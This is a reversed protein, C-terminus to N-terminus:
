RQRRKFLGGMRIQNSREKGESNKMRGVKGPCDVSRRVGPGKARNGGGCRGSRGGGGRGGSPSSERRPGKKLGRFPPIEGDGNGLRGRGGLGAGVRTGLGRWGASPNQTRTIRGSAMRRRTPLPCRKREGNLVLWVNGIIGRSKKKIRTRQNRRVTMVDVTGERFMGDWGGGGEGGSPDQFSGQLVGTRHHRRSSRRPSSATWGSKRSWAWPCQCNWDTWVM